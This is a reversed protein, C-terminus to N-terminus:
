RQGNFNMILLRCSDRSVPTRRMADAQDDAPMVIMRMGLDIRVKEKSVIM